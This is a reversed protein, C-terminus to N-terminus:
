VSHHMAMTPTPKSLISSKTVNDYRRCIRRPISLTMNNVVERM